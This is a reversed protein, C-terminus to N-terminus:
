VKVIKGIPDNIGMTKIATENFIIASQDTPFEKSFPRGDKLEFGLTEILDYNVQQM